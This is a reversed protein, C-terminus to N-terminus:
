RISRTLVDFTMGDRFHEYEEYSHTLDVLITHQKCKRDEEPPLEMYDGYLTTLLADYEAPVSFAGDQFTMLIQKDFWERRYVSKEMKSAGGLFSHVYQTDGRGALKTLSLFPQLPLCRCLQMFIKKKTSDTEYGRRYLSKAVVVKSAYFQMKRMLGNDSANDCPFIDIYVGQHCATDKPHFKELCTTGNLRLKSFFMPWHSSFEKQLFFRSHDLVADAEALLRDYDERMLIVDLDDDWPIFGQHRVAGLMSGAFLQYPIELKRCVTDLECLLTYLAAQHQELSAEPMNKEMLEMAMNEMHKEM